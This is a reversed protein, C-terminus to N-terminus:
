PLPGQDDMERAQVSHNNGIEEAQTEILGLFTPAFDLNSVLDINISGPVITVPYRVLLPMRLSEEYMFRKDFLGHEGLYFGQDSTYVVITNNDLGNENIYDLLSPFQVNANGCVQGVSHALMRHLDWEVM